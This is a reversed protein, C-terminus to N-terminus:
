TYFGSATINCMPHTAMILSHTHARVHLQSLSPSLSFTPVAPFLAIPTSTPSVGLDRKKSEKVKTGNSSLGRVRRTKQAASANERFVFPAGLLPIVPMSHFPPPPYVFYSFNLSREHWLPMAMKLNMVMENSYSDSYRM